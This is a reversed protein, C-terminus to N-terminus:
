FGTRDHEFITDISREVCGKWKLAELSMIVPFEVKRKASPIVAAIGSDPQTMV